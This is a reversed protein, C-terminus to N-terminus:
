DRMDTKICYSSCYEEDENVPKGCVICYNDPEEPPAQTKWDDYNM